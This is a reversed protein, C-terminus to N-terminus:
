NHQDYHHKCNSCLNSGDYSDLYKECSCLSCNGFGM